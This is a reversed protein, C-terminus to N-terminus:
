AIKWHHLIKLIVKINTINADNVVVAMNVVYKYSRKLNMKDSLNVILRHSDYIRSNESNLFIYYGNQYIQISNKINNYVDKIMCSSM